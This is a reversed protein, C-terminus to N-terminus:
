EEVEYVGLLWKWISIVPLTFPHCSQAVEIMIGVMDEDKYCWAARPNGWLAAQWTCLHHFLHLKPSGKWMRVGSDFNDAALSGYLSSFFIGWSRWSM